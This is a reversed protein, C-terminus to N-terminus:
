DFHNVRIMDHFVLGLFPSVKLEKALWIPLLLKAGRQLNTDDRMKDLHGLKIIDTQLECPIREEEALVANIDYYSM